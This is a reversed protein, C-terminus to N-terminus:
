EEFQKIQKSYEAFAFDTYEKQKQQEANMLLIQESIRMENESMKMVCAQVKMDTEREQKQGREYLLKDTAKIMKEM